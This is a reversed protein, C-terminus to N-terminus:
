VIVHWSRRLISVARSLVADDIDDFRMYASGAICSSSATIKAVDWACSFGASDDGQYV